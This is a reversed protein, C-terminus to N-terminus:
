IAVVAHSMPVLTVNPPLDWIHSRAILLHIIYSGLHKFYSNVMM